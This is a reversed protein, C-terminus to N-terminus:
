SEEPLVGLTQLQQFAERITALGDAHDLEYRARSGGDSTDILSPLFVGRGVIHSSGSAAADDAIEVLSQQFRDLAAVLQNVAARVKANPPESNRLITACTSLEILADVIYGPITQAPARSIEICTRAVADQTRSLDFALDGTRAPLDSGDAATPGPTRTRAVVPGPRLVRTQPERGFLSIVWYSVALGIATTALALLPNAGILPATRALHQYVLKQASLSFITAVLNGLGLAVVAWGYSIEVGALRPLVARLVLGGIVATVLTTFGLSVGVGQGGSHGLPSLWIGALLGVVWGSVLISVVTLVFPPSKSVPAASDLMFVLPGKTGCCCSDM